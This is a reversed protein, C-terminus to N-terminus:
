LMRPIIPYSRRPIISHSPCPPRYIAVIPRRHRGRVAGTPPSSRAAVCPNPCARATPATTAQGRERASMRAAVETGVKSDGFRRTLACAVEVIIIAPSVSVITERALTRLFEVSDAHFRDTEDFAAVWVNADVTPPAIM